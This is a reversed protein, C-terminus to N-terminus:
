AHVAATSTRTGALKNKIIGQFYKAPTGKIEGRIQADRTMSLASYLEDESLLRSIKRHWAISKTDKLQEAIDYAIGIQRQSAESAELNPAIPLAFYVTLINEKRRNVEFRADKLFGVNILEAIGRTIIRKNEKTVSSLPMAAAIKTLAVPWKPKRCNWRMQDLYRYLRRGLPTKIKRYRDLELIKTNGALIGQYIFEDFLVWGPGGGCEAISYNNIIGFGASSRRDSRRVRWIRDATCSVGTWRKLSDRVRDYNRGGSTTVGALKLIEYISRWYVKRSKWGQAKGLALIAMLVDQDIGWPLGHEASGSISFCTTVAHNEIITDREFTIISTPSQTRGLTCIPLEALNIEDVGTSFDLDFFPISLQEAAQGNKIVPKQHPGSRVPPVGTPSHAAVNQEM